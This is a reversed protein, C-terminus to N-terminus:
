SNRRRQIKAAVKRLAELDEAPLEEVLSALAGRRAEESAHELTRHLSGAVYDAESARASYQMARGSRRRDVLGREVLRNLVTQVTTYAGRKGAPLLSRVQEVSASEVQWLARM